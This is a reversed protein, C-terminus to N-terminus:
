AVVLTINAAECEQDVLDRYPPAALPARDEVADLDGPAVRDQFLVVCSHDEKQRSYWLLGDFKRTHRHTAEAWAQTRPYCTPLSGILRQWDTRLRRLSSGHFAALVLDRRTRIRSVALEDLRSAPLTIEHLDRPLDHFLSEALAVAFTPAAYLTPVPTGSSGSFPAFRTPKASPNTWTNFSIVAFGPSHIRFLLTGGPLAEPLPDFGAGPARPCPDPAM